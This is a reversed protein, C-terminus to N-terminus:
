FLPENRQLAMLQGMYALHKRNKEGEMDNLAVKYCNSCVCIGWQQSTAKQEECVMCVLELGDVSLNEMDSAKCNFTKSM